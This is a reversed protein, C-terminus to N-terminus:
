IEKMCHVSRHTWTVHLTSIYCTVHLHEWTTEQTGTQTMFLLTYFELYDQNGIRHLCHAAEHWHLPSSLIGPAPGPVLSLGAQRNHGLASWCCRAPFSLLPSSVALLTCGGLGARAVWCPSLVSFLHMREVLMIQVTSITPLAISSLCYVNM